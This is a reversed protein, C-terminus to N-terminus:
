KEGNGFVGLTSEIAKVLFHFGVLAYGTPIVTLVIWTPIDLFVVSGSAKEDVIFTWAADALFYCVIVAFLSTITQTTSKIRPSLFRSIADVSIHGDVPTALAAGIFGLWLVAHRIIPDAWIIGTDFLNRLVVQGFALILMGGLFLVLLGSEIRYLVKNLTRLIIM